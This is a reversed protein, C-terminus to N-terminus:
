QTVQLRPPGIRHARRLKLAQVLYDIIFDIRDSRLIAGILSQLNRPSCGEGQISHGEVCLDEATFPMARRLRSYLPCILFVHWEDEIPPLMHYTWYCYACARTPVYRRTVDWNDAYAALNLNGTFLRAAVSRKVAGCLANIISRPCPTRPGVLPLPCRRVPAWSKWAAKLTRSKSYRDQDCM